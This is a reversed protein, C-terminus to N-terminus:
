TKAGATTDTTSITVGDNNNALTIEVRLDGASMDGTPLYKSQMCGVIGSLLPITYVRSEGVVLDEGVRLGGIGEMVNGTSAHADNCGTVDLWMTHLLRYEHIQELLNSGHYTELRAILSSISYDPTITAQKGAAVEEATIVSTNKVKFKLYSLKQNLFQGKHGCPVNLM